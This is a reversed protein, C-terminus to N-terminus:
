NTFRDQDILHRIWGTLFYILQMVLVQYGKTLKIVLMVGDISIWFHLKVIKLNRKSNKSGIKNKLFDYAKFIVWFTENQLM